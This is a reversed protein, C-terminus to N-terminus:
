AKTFSHIAMSGRMVIPRTANFTATLAQSKDNIKISKHRTVLLTNNNTMTIDPLLRLMRYVFWLEQEMLETFPTNYANGITM